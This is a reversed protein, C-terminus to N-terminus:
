GHAEGKSPLRIEIGYVAAAALLRAIDAEMVPLPAANEDIVRTGADFFFREVGAPTFIQLLRGRETGVNRFRHAIGRKCHVFEQPGIHEVRDGYQIEFEGAVVYFSEDERSHVHMPPGGGAPIIGDMMFCMGGTEAGTALFKYIDGVMSVCCGARCDLAELKDMM